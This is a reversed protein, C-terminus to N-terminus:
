DYRRGKKLHISIFESILREIKERYVTLGYKQEIINHMAAKLEHDRHRLAVRELLALDAEGQARLYVGEIPEAALIQLPLIPNGVVPVGAALCELVVLPLGEYLSPFFMVDGRNYFTNLEEQKLNYFIETNTLGAFLEANHESMTAILLKWNSKGEIALALKHLDGLGKGAELRGCFLVKITGDAGAAPRPVIVPDDAPRSEPDNTSYSTPRFTPCFTKTNICNAIVKIQGAKCKYYFMLHQKVAEGVAVLTRARRSALMEFLAHCKWKAKAGELAVKYGRINGHAFQIDAKVFPANFGQTIIIRNNKDIYGAYRHLYLSVLLADLTYHRGLLFGMPSTRRILEFDIIRVRYKAELITQLYQTVAEVGGVRKTGNLSVIIINIKSM